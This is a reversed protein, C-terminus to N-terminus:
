HFRIGETHIEENEWVEEELAENEYDLTNKKYKDDTKREDEFVKTYPKVQGWDNRISKVLQAPTMPETYRKKRKM